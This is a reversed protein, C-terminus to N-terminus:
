QCMDVKVIGKLIKNIGDVQCLCEGQEEDATICKKIERGDLFVKALYAKDDYAYDDKNASIRM